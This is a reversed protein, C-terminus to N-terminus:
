AMLTLRKPLQSQRMLAGGGVPRIVGGALRKKMKGREVIYSACRLMKKMREVRRGFCGLVDGALERERGSL